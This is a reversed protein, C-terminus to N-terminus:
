KLHRLQSLARGQETKEGGDDLDGATEVDAFLEERDSTLWTPFGILVVRRPRAPPKAACKLRHAWFYSARNQIKQVPPGGFLLMGLATPREECEAGLALPRSAERLDKELEKRSRWVEALWKKILSLGEFM